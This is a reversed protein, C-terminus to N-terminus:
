SGEKPANAQARAPVQNLMADIDEALRVDGDPPLWQPNHEGYKRQWKGFQVLSRRLLAYVPEPDVRAPEPVDGIGRWEPESAHSARLRNGWDLIARREMATWTHTHPEPHHPLDADTLAQQVPASQPADKQAAPRRNWASIADSDEDAYQECKCANCGVHIPGVWQGGSGREDPEIFIDTGGCFPCAALKVLDDAEPTM